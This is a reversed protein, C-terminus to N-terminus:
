GPFGRCPLFTTGPQDPNKLDAQPRCCRTCYEQSVEDIVATAWAHTRDALLTAVDTDLTSTRDPM